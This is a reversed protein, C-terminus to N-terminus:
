GVHIRDVQPGLDLREICAPAATHFLHSPAGSDSAGFGALPVTLADSGRLRDVWDAERRNRSYHVRIEVLRLHPKLYDIHWHPRPTPRLHHRLRGRVGGSGFASGVYLYFGPELRFVGLAGIQVRRGGSCAYILLYTGRGSGFREILGASRRPM